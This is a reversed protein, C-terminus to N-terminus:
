RERRIRWPLLFRVWGAAFRSGDLSEHVTPAGREGLLDIRLANRTYFPSDEFARILKAEGGVDTRVTRDVGWRGRPLRATQDAEFTTVEGNDAFLLGRTVPRPFDHPARRNPVTDYQVATGAKLTTRAWSWRQFGAELGETGMNADHYADGAFRLAPDRLTVEVRSRPAVGWWRHLGGAEIDVPVVPLAQPHLRIEGDLRRNMRQFFPKTPEAFRVVLADGEWAMSSRGVALQDQARHVQQRPRETFVWADRVRKRGAANNAYLAVNIACHDLPDPAARGDSRADLRKRAYWPSFV